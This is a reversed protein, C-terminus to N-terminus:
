GGFKEKVKDFFGKEGQPEPELTDALSQFLERQRPSLRSPVVIRTEVFMDGRGPSRLLPVGKGRLRFTHGPQVGAPVKLDVTGDLTPVTVENGLAAQAVNIPMEYYIDAGDRRFFPHEEVTLVVYLDGAAGGQPGAEGEGTLRIQQGDDVGGPIKVTVHRAGRERGQGRCRGCPTGPIQGQGQCRECIVVNVFQGFVSQQVRRQEGTGRCSPCTTRQSGPEAGSGSCRSCPMLTPIELEKESGFVAEEFSIHLDYRLDSGRQSGRHGQRAAGGFFQEFIDAFGEFGAQAGFGASGNVGSHGFRDYAARKRQDSLVQYAESVEKFRVEAGAEKNVDPHYQRAQTRFARKIEEEGATRSIGLVEYYDRKAAM